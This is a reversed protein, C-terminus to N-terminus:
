QDISMSGSGHSGVGTSPERSGGGLGDGGDQDQGGQVASNTVGVAGNYPLSAGDVSGPIPGFAKRFIGREAGM